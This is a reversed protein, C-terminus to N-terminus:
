GTRRSPRRGELAEPCLPSENATPRRETPTPHIRCGATAEPASAPRQEDETANHLRACRWLTALRRYNNPPAIGETSGAIALPREGWDSARWTHLNELMAAHADNPHFSHMAPITQTASAGSSTDSIFLSFTKIRVPAPRTLADSETTGRLQRPPQTPRRLLPEPLDVNEGRVASDTQHGRGSVIGHPVTVGFM